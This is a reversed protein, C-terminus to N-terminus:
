ELVSSVAHMCLPVSATHFTRVDAPLHVLILLMISLFTILSSTPSGASCLGLIHKIQFICYSPKLLHTLKHVPSNKHLNSTLFTARLVM